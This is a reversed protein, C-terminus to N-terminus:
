EGIYDFQETDIESIVNLKYLSTTLQLIADQEKSSLIDYLIDITTTTYSANTVIKHLHAIGEDTLYKRYEEESFKLVKAILNLWNTTSKSSQTNRQKIKRYTAIDLILIKPSDEVLKNVHDCVQQDSYEMKKQHLKILESVAFSKVKETTMKKSSVLCRFTNLIISQYDYELQNYLTLFTEKKNDIVNM